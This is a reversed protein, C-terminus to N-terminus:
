FVLMLELVFSDVSATIDAGKMDTFWLNLFQRPNVVEWKKYKTLITNTFCCFSNLYRDREIFDAHLEIDGVMLGKYLCRCNQVIVFRRNHSSLFDIPFRTKLENIVMYTKTIRENTSQTLDGGSM